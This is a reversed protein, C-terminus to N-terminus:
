PRVSKGAPGIATSVVAPALPRLMALHVGGRLNAAIAERQNRMDDYWKRLQEVYKNAEDESHSRYFIHWERQRGQPAALVYDFLFEAM